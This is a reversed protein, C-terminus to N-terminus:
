SWRTETLHCQTQRATPEYNIFYRKGPRYVVAYYHNCVFQSLKHDINGNGSSFFSLSYFIPIQVHWTKVGIVVLSTSASRIEAIMLLQTTVDDMNNLLLFSTAVDLKALKSDKLFFLCSCQKHKKINYNYCNLSSLLQLYNSIVAM